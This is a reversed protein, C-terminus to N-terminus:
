GRVQLIVEAMAIAATVATGTGTDNVSTAIVIDLVDGAARSTSTLTFSYEAFTLSNCSQAATTVLDSGSALTTRACLYAQVDVTAAASAVTTLMGAALRVSISGGAYYERPLTFQIRGYRPVAGLNNKQDGGTLYPCGTGFTGATIGLDDNGATGLATQFADWVRFDQLPLAYTASDGVIINTRNIPGNYNGTVTLSGTIQVDGDLRQTAM